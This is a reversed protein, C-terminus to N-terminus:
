PVESLKQQHFHQYVLLFPKWQLSHNGSFHIAEVLLFLKQQFSHNRTFTIAKVLLFPKQQFSRNGSFPITEVLLFPKWQFSHSSTFLIAEVFLFNMHRKDVPYHVKIIKALCKGKLLNFLEKTKRKWNLQIMCRKKLALKVLLM